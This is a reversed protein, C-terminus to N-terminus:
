LHEITISSEPHRRLLTQLQSDANIIELQIKQKICPKSKEMSSPLSKSSSPVVPKKAETIPKEIGYESSKKAIYIVLCASSERYQRLGFLPPLM